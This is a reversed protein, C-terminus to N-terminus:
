AADAEQQHLVWDPYGLRTDGNQVDYQWDSVPYEPDEVWPDPRSPPTNAHTYPFDNANREVALDGAFVALPVFEQPPIDGGNAKSAMAQVKQTAEVSDEASAAEIYTENEEGGTIYAPYRLIVTYTAEKAGFFGKVTDAHGCQPCQCHSRGDFDIDGAFGDCGDDTMDVFGSVHIKLMDENGCQPCRMGALCNTNM